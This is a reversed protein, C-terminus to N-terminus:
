AEAVSRQPANGLTDSPRLKLERSLSSSEGYGSSEAVWGYAGVRKDLLSDLGVPANLLKLPLRNRIAYCLVANMQKVAETLEEFSVTSDLNESQTETISPLQQLIQSVCETETEEKRYLNSYFDVAM